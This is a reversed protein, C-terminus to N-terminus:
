FGERDVGSYTGLARAQEACAWVPLEIGAAECDIELLSLADLYFDRSRLARPNGRLM